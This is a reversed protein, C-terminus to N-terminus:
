DFSCHYMKWNCKKVRTKNFLGQSIDQYIECLVFFTDHGWKTVSSKYNLNEMIFLVCPGWDYGRHPISIEETLVFYM